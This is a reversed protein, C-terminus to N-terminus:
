LKITQGLNNPMIDTPLMTLGLNDSRFNNAPRFNNTSPRFRQSLDNPRIDATTM